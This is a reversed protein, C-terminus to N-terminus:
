VSLINLPNMLISGFISGFGLSFLFNQSGTVIPLWSIAFVPLIGRFLGKSFAGKEYLVSLERPISDAGEKALNTQLIRNTKIVDLPYTLLGYMKVRRNIIIYLRQNYILISIM